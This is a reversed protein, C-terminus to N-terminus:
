FGDRHLTEDFHFDWSASRHQPNADLWAQNKRMLGGFKRVGKPSNFNVFRGMARLPPVALVDRAIGRLAEAGLKGEAGKPARNECSARVKDRSM